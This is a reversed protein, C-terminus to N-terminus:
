PNPFINMLMKEIQSRLYARDCRFDNVIVVVAHTPAFDDDLKYGAYCQIGNMSGTKLAIYSDLPSGALFKRLTGEQGALPFYSVYDIDNKKHNLINEMFMATVRNSRSLGSGDIIKVGEMAAGQRKWYEMERAAADATSGDGGKIKGFRRLFTEAFLNDSRNMCSRMIERLEASEHTFLPTRVGEKMLEDGVSIGGKSLAGRLAVNFVGSPNQEARKGSANNRFNFAHSGTGYSQALDGKAWSPPCSPGAFQSEDIIIKGAIRKIGKQKLAEVIEAVFDESYPWVTSNVTPDGAGEIILNGHLTGEADTKGEISVQTLWLSEPRTADSLAAISVSKMISAPILPVTANYSAIIKDRSLDSVIVAMSGSPLRPTQAFADVAEQPSMAAAVASWLLLLLLYIPRLTTKM